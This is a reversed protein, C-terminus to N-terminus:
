NKINQDFERPLTIDTSYLQGQYLRLSYMPICTTSSDSGPSEFDRFELERKCDANFCIADEEDEEEEEEVEEKEDALANADLEDDDEEDGKEAATAPALSSSRSSTTDTQMLHM